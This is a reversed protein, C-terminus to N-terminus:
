TLTGVSVSGHTRNMCSCTTGCQRMAPRRFRSLRGAMAARCLSVMPMPRVAQQMRSPTTRYMSPSPPPATRRISTWAITPISAMFGDLKDAYKEANQATISVMAKEKIIPDDRRGPEKINCSAPAKMIDESYAPITGDKNGTKEAGWPTLTTGLQKAEEASVAAYASVSLLLAFIAIGLQCPKKTRM